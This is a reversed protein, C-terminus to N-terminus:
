LSDTITTLKDDSDYVLTTTNGNTDKESTLKKTFSFALIEGSDYTITYTGNTNKVATARITTNKDYTGGANKMFWFAGLNGDHM